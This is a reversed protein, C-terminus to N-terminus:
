GVHIATGVANLVQSANVKSLAGNSFKENSVAFKSCSYILSIALIAVGMRLALQKPTM